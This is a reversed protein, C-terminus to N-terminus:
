HCSVVFQLLYFYLFFFELQCSDGSMLKIDLEEKPFIFVWQLFLGEKNIEIFQEDCLNHFSISSPQQIKEWESVCGVSM